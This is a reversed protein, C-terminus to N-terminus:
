RICGAGTGILLNTREVHDMWAKQCHSLMQELSHLYHQNIAVSTKGIRYFTPDVVGSEVLEKISPWNFMGDDETYGKFPIIYKSTSMTKSDSEAHTNMCTEFQNLHYDSTRWTENELLNLVQVPISDKTKTNYSKAM